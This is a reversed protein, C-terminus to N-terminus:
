QVCFAMKINSVQNRETRWDGPTCSLPQTIGMFECITHNKNRPIHINYKKFVAHRDSENKCARSIDELMNKEYDTPPNLSLLEELIIKARKKDVPIMDYYVKLAAVILDYIERERGEKIDSIRLFTIEKTESKACRLEEKLSNNESRLVENEKKLESREKKESNLAEKMPEKSQVSSVSKQQSRLKDLVTKDFTPRDMKANKTIADVVSCMVFSECNNFSSSTRDKPTIVNHSGDPLYIGIEGRSPPWFKKQSMAGKIDANATESNEIVVHAIGQLKNALSYEDINGAYSHRDQRSLYIIPFEPIVKKSIVDAMYKVMKEDCEKVSSPCGPYECRLFGEKNLFTIIKLGNERCIDVDTDLYIRKGRHDFLIEVTNESSKLRYAKIGDFIEREQELKNNAVYKEICKDLKEETFLFNKYEFRHM